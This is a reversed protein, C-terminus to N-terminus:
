KYLLAQRTPLKQGINETDPFCILCKYTWLLFGILWKLSWRTTLSAQVEGFPHSSPQQNRYLKWSIIFFLLYIPAMDLSILKTFTQPFFGGNMWWICRHRVFPMFHVWSCNFYLNILRIQNLVTKILATSNGGIFTCRGSSNPCRQPIEPPKSLRVTSEKVLARWRM